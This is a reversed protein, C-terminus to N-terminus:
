HHRNLRLSSLHISVIRAPFIEAAVVYCAVSHGFDWGVAYVYIAVVGVIGGAPTGSTRDTDPDPGFKVYLALYLMCSAQITAGVLLPLRRGVHEVLYGVYFITTVFKVVGYIGTTLLSDGDGVGDSRHWFGPYTSRELCCCRRLVMDLSKQRCDGSPTLGCVQLQELVAVQCAGPITTTLFALRTDADICGASDFTSIRAKLSANGDSVSGIHYHCSNRDELLMPVSM